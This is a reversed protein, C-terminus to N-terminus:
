GSGWGAWGWTVHRGGLWGGETLAAGAPAAPAAGLAPPPLPPVPLGFLSAEPASPPAKKPKQLTVRPPGLAGGWEAVEVQFSLAGGGLGQPTCGRGRFRLKVDFRPAQGGAPGRVAHLCGGRGGVWRLALLGRGCAEGVADEEEGTAGAGGVGQPAGKIGVGASQKEWAEWLKNLEMGKEQEEM